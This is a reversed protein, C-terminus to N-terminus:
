NVLIIREFVEPFEVLRADGRVKYMFNDAFAEEAGWETEEATELWERQSEEDLLEWLAHGLEHCITDAMDQESRHPESRVYVTLGHDSELSNRVYQGVWENVNEVGMDTLEGDTYDEVTLGNVLLDAFGAATVRQRAVDVALATQDTTLSM